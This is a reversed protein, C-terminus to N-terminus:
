YIQSSVGADRSAKNRRKDITYVYKMGIEIKTTRQSIEKMNCYYKLWGTAVYYRKLTRIYLSMAYNIKWLETAFFHGKIYTTGPTVMSAHFLTYFVSVINRIEKYRNTQLCLITSIQLNNLITFLINTKWVKKRFNDRWPSREFPLSSGNLVCYSIDVRM